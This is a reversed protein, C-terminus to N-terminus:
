KEEDSTPRLPRSKLMVGSVSLKKRFKPRLMGGLRSGRKNKGCNSLPAYGTAISWPRTGGASNMSPLISGVSHVDTAMCRVFRVSNRPFCATSSRMSSIKTTRHGNKVGSRPWKESCRPQSDPEPTKITRLILRKPNRRSCISITGTQNLKSWPHSLFLSGNSFKFNQM